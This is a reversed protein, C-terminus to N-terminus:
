SPADGCSDNPLGALAGPHALALEGLLVTEVQSAQVM